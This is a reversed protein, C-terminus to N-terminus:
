YNFDNEYLNGVSIQDDDVVKYRYDLWRYSELGLEHMLKNILNEQVLENHYLMLFYELKETGKLKESEETLFNSYPPIEEEKSWFM